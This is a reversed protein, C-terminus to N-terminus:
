QLDDMLMIVSYIALGILPFQRVYIYRTWHHRRRRVELDVEDGKRRFPFPFFSTQYQIPILIRTRTRARTLTLTLIQFQLSIPLLIPPHIPCISSSNFPITVPLILYLNKLLLITIQLIWPQKEESKRCFSNVTISFNPLHFFM